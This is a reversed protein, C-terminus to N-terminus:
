PMPMPPSHPSPAESAISFIGASFRPKGDAVEESRDGEEEDLRREAPAAQEDGGGHGGQEREEDAHADALGLGPLLGLRALALRADTEALDEQLRPDQAAEDVEHRQHRREVEEAVTRLVEERREQLVVV